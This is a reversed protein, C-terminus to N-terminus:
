FDQHTFFSLFWVQHRPKREQEIKTSPKKVQLHGFDCCLMHTYKYSSYNLHVKYNPHPPFPLSLVKGYFGNWYYSFTTYKRWPNCPSKGFEHFPVYCLCHNQKKACNKKPNTEKLTFEFFNSLLHSFEDFKWFWLISHFFFVFFVRFMILIFFLTLLKISTTM